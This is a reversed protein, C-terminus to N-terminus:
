KTAVIHFKIQVEDAVVSTDKWEGTGINFVSRRIPLVGDFTQAAGRQTVTVPVTLTETRGKITLTGTVRYHNGGAAAIASSVFTAAPYTKVDFWEKGIVQDNYMRDGIDFSAVDISVQASSQTPRAPDFRIQASFKRFVGETPVNMQKAIASVRSTSPDVDALLASSAVLSVAAFAALPLMRSLLRDRDFLQHKAVALLHLVVLSLLGYNLIVHLTRFTEKLVPDPDILRPLPLIGLYVVPINSASSYLYGTVPIVLMLGYLAAHVAHASIRQVVSVGDPLRPPVHTARWLVRVTALVFVTVGIWKHWSFYKLKTPTFGPIDTMVWGLAFGSLILLAILWHLAVATRTYAAPAAPASNMAM